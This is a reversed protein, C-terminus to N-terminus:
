AIKSIIVVMYYAMVLMAVICLMFLVCGCGCGVDDVFDKETRDDPSYTTAKILEYLTIIFVVGALALKILASDM